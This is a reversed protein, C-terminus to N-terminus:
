PRAPSCTLFIQPTTDQPTFFGPYRPKRDKDRFICFPQPIRCNCENEGGGYLCYQRHDDVWYFECVGLDVKLILQIHFFLQNRLLWNGAISSTWESIESLFELLKQYRKELTPCKQLDDVWGNNSIEGIAGAVRTRL